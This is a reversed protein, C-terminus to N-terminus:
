ASGGGHTGSRDALGAFRQAAAAADAVARQAPLLLRSLAVFSHPLGPYVQLEHSVGADSLRAALSLSDALLPDADGVGVWAPPLGHVVGRLVVAQAQVQASATGLYQEWVWRSRATTHPGPGAFNGYLLILGAIRPTSAHALERAAAVALSAGASDGWLLMRQGSLKLAAAHGALWTLADVTDHLQAPFRHEPTPRYDLGCVPLGSAEAIFAMTHLSTDLSGAWWGGGRLYVIPTHGVPHRPWVVRLRIAGHRGTAQADQHAVASAQTGALFELYRRHTERAQALGEALPDGPRQGAAHVHREADALHAFPHHPTNM